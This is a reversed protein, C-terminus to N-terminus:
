GIKKEPTLLDWAVCGGVSFVIVGLSVLISIHLLHATALIMKAGIFVLVFSLGYHLRQFKGIMGALLFYLSRLGLIAFINSTYAIFFSRTIGLVAPISDVAFLVDTVNIAVLAFGPVTAMWRGEHRTLYGPAGPPAIPIVRRLVRVIKAEEEEEAEHGHSRFMAIGSWVLFGGFIYFLFEFYSVLGVGLGIFFARMLVAALIGWFLLGHEDERQIGFHRFLLYFVFLNDISLSYEMLYAALFELGEAPGHRVFVTANFFLALAVWGATTWAAEKMSVVHAKKNLVLLDIALCFAVLLHFAIWFKM